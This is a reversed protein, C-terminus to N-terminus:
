ISFLFFVKDISDLIGYGIAKALGPRIRAVIHDINTTGYVINIFMICM